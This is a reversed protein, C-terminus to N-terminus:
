GGGLETRMNKSFRLSIYEPRGEGDTGAQSPFSRIETLLCKKCDPDPVTPALLFSLGKIKLPKSRPLTEREGVMLESAPSARLYVGAFM